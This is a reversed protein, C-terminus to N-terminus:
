AAVFEGVLDHCQAGDPLCAANCWDKMLGWLETRKDTYRTGDASDAPIPWLM